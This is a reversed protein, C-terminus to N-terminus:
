PRCHLRHKSSREGLNSRWGAPGGGGLSALGRATFRRKGIDSFSSDIDACPFGRARAKEFVERRLATLGVSGLGNVLVVQSPDLTDLAADDGLWPCEKPWDEAPEVPATCGLVRMNLVTMLGLISRAHGGAGLLVVNESEVPASSM